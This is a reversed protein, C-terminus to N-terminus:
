TSGTASSGRGSSSCHEMQVKGMYYGMGYGPQSLYLELDFLAITDDPGMWRPTRSTLSDLADEVTWEHSHMKLEPLVRAARKAQLIYNIVKTKPRDDLLGAHQIFEELDYSWGEARTGDIFFLRPTGQQSTRM